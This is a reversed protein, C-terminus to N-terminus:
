KCRAQLRRQYRRLLMPPTITLLHRAETIGEDLALADSYTAKQTLLQSPVKNPFVAQIDFLIRELEVERRTLLEVEDESYIAGSELRLVTVIQEDSQVPVRRMIRDPILKGRQLLFHLVQFKGMDGVFRRMENSCNRNAVESFYNSIVPPLKELRVVRLLPKEM